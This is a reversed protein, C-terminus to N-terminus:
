TALAVRGNAGAELLQAHDVTTQDGYSSAFAAIARDFQRSKGLYGSIAVADGTRAHARALAWACLKGYRALTEADMTAPDAAGKMDWLQRVYYHRGSRPGESWGLFIDSAAQTLRQGTVVRLGHHGLPSAGVYPELVSANAEKVQLFLPDGLPHHPGELLGLWCRTGVSGVGVVKRAVDVLRFRDFLERRDDALSTRYGELLGNVEDM